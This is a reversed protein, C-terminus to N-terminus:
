SKPRVSEIMQKIDAAISRDSALNRDERALDITTEGSRLIINNKETAALREVVVKILDKDNSQIATTLAMARLDVNTLENQFYKVESMGNRYLRLFFFAFVEIFVVFTIRPLFHIAFASFTLESDTGIAAPGPGTVLFYFLTAMGLFSFLSGITMNRNAFSWLVKTENSLRLRLAQLHKEQQQVREDLIRQEVFKEIGSSGIEAQVSKLLHEKAYEFKGQDIGALAAKLEGVEGSLKIHALLLEDATSRTEDISGPIQDIRRETSRAASWMSFGFLIGSVASAAAALAAEGFYREVAVGSTILFAIFFISAALIIPSEEFARRAAPVLVDAM